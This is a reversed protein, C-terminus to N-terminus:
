AASSDSPTNEAAVSEMAKQIKEILYPIDFPKKVFTVKSSLVDHESLLKDAHGSMYLVGIGPRREAIREALLPGDMEPMIVDTVLLHIPETYSNAISLAEVGNEACIVTYGNRELGTRIMKRLSIYDEVLLITETSKGSEASPTRPTAVPKEDVRKLYVDAITGKGPESSLSIYGDSQKVIGYVTALGLGTGLGPPKTTFFPEFAQRQIEGDMGVGTDALSLKVCRGVQRVESRHVGDSDLETNETTITLTGGQPMADRANVALNMIVQQLQGVDARVNGADPDLNLSVIIDEGVLRRLMKVTDSVVLNVSVVEPQLLQKRSFALLQSILCDASRIAIRIEDAIGTLGANDGVQKALLETYGEIVGLLNNFDHAIGGALRGVADLKQAQLLDEELRKRDTVDTCTGVCERINRGSGLVPVGRIAMHRYEGDHRRLRYEGYCPTCSQVARSWEAKALERDDPHIADVWGWGRLEEKHMGSFAAWMAQDTIVEGQADTTWVIQATALVLSRYRQEGHRVAENARNESQTTALLRLSFTLASVMVAGWAISPESQAIWRAFAVVALPLVVPILQSSWGERFEGIEASTSAPLDHWRSFLWAVVLFPLSGEVQLWQSLSHFTLFIYQTLVSGLTYISLYIGMLRFASHERESNAIYTRFWFGGMVGVNRVILVIAFARNLSSLHAMSADKGPLYIFTAFLIALIILIQVYDLLKPWNIARGGRLRGEHLLLAMWFPVMHLFFVFDGFAFIEVHELRRLIQALVLLAFGASSLAFLTRVFDRSRLAASGAFICALSVSIIQLPASVLSRYFPERIASVVLLHLGLISGLGVAVFTGHHRCVITKLWM